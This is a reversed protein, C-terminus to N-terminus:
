PRRNSSFGSSAKSALGSISRGKQTFQALSLQDRRQSLLHQGRALHQEPQLPQRRRITMSRLIHRHM